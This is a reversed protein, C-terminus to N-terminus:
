HPVLQTAMLMQALTAMQALRQEQPMDLHFMFFM